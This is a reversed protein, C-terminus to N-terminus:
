LGSQVSKYAVPFLEKGLEKTGYAFYQTEPVEGACGIMRLCIPLSLPETFRNQLWKTVLHSVELCDPVLIYLRKSIRM